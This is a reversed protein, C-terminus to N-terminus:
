HHLHQPGTAAAAGSRVSAPVTAPIATSPSAASDAAREARLMGGDSAALLVASVVATALTGWTLAKLTAAIM